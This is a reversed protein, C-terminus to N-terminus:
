KDDKKIYHHIVWNSGAGISAAGVADILIAQVIRDNRHKLTQSPDTVLKESLNQLENLTIHQEALSSQIEDKIAQEKPSGKTHKLILAYFYRVDSLVSDPDHAEKAYSLYSARCSNLDDVLVKFLKRAEDDGMINKLRWYPMSFLRSAFHEDFKGWSKDLRSFTLDQQILNNYIHPSRAFLAAGIDALGEQVTRDQSTYAGLGYHSILINHFREHGVLSKQDIPGGVSHDRYIVDKYTGSLVDLKPLPAFAPGRGMVIDTPGPREFGMSAAFNDCAQTMHAVSYADDMTFRSLVANRVSINGLKFMPQKPIAGAIIRLPGRVTATAATLGIDKADQLYDKLTTSVCSSQIEQAFLDQPSLLSLVLSLAIPLQYVKNM